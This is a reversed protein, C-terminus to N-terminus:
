FLDLPYLDTNPSYMLIIEIKRISSKHHPFSSPINLYATLYVTMPSNNIFSESTPSLVYMSNRSTDSFIAQTQSSYCMSYSLPHYQFPMDLSVTIFILSKQIYLSLIHRFHISSPIKIFDGTLIFSIFDLYFPFFLLFNFTYACIQWYRKHYLFLYLRIQTFM